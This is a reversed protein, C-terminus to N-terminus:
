LLKRWDDAFQATSSDGRYILVQLQRAALPTLPQDPSKPWWRLKGESFRKHILWFGGGDYCLFKIATGARNRFVFLTGSYPDQQFKLRCVAAISEIGKRFDLPELALLIKLQPPLLIM